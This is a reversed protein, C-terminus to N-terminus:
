SDGKKFNFLWVKNQLFALSVIGLLVRRSHVFYIKKPEM